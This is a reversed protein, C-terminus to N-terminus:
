PDIAQSRAITNGGSDEGSTRSHPRRCSCLLDISGAVSREPPQPAAHEVSTLLRYWSMWFRLAESTGYASM